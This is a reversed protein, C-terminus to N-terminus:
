LVNKEAERVSKSEMFRESLQVIQARARLDDENVLTAILDPNCKILIEKLHSYTKIAIFPTKPDM